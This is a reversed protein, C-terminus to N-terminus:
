ARKVAYTSELVASQFSFFKAQSEASAVEAAVRLKSPWPISGMLGPMVSTVANQIDMQFTFQPDPFSRATTIREVSAAWDYYTAEVSPQNLLAFTLFDGLDSNTALVPLAPKHGETRYNAATDQLQHRAEKEGKTPIGKCGALLAILVAVGIITKM